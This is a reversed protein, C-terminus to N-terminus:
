IIISIIQSVKYLCNNKKDVAKRIMITPIISSFFPWLNCVFFCILFNILYNKQSNKFVACFASVYYWCFIIIVSSVTYLINDKRKIQVVLAKRKAKNKESKIQNLDREYICVNKVITYVIFSCLTSLVINQIHFVADANGKYIYLARIIRDNFFIATFTMCFVIFLIFLVIKTSHLIGRSTSLTFIIFQKFKLFYWYTLLYSHTEKLNDYYFFFNIGDKEYTLNREFNKFKKRDSHADKINKNTKNKNDSERDKEENKEVKKEENKPPNAVRKSKNFLENM